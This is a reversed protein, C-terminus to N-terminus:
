VRWRSALNVVPGFATVKVQDQTGIKGAVAQGTAIGLGIQFNGFANEDLNRGLALGSFKERIECAAEIARIATEEQDLPWGWFGMASDGHFDGIVGGHELISQTTVGLSDSVQELLEELNGALCKFSRVRIHIRNM